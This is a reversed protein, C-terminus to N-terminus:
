QSIPQDNAARNSARALLLVTRRIYAALPLGERDAAEQLEAREQATLFIQKRERQQKEAKAMVM